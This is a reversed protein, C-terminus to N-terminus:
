SPAGPARLWFLVLAVVAVVVLILGLGIWNNPENKWTVGSKRQESKRWRGETM